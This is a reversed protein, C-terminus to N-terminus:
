GRDRPSPSTYLLCTILVSRGGAHQNLWRLCSACYDIEDMSITSQRLSWPLYANVDRDAIRFITGSAYGIGVLLYATLTLALLPGRARLRLRLLGNAAYASLPFVMFLLWRFFDYFPYSSPCLLISLTALSLWAILPDLAEERKLGILALPLLPMYCTLALKLFSRAVGLYSHDLVRPDAYYNKLPIPLPPVRRLPHPMLAIVTHETVPFSDPWVLGMYVALQYSFLLASPTLALSVEPLENRWGRRLVQCACWIFMLVTALQHSLATLLSTLLVLWPRSRSRSKFAATFLFFFALGLENRLLDWSLRLAPIQLSCLLSGLLGRKEDWRLTRKLFAFFALALFGYVAPSLLKLLLFVDLGTLRLLAWAILYLLPPRILLYSPPQAHVRPIRYAYMAVDYGVPYRPTMLEPILRVLFALSFALLPCLFRSPSTHRVIRRGESGEAM